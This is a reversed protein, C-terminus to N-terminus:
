FVKMQSIQWDGAGRALTVLVRNQDVRRQASGKTATVQNVFVLAEVEHDDASVVSSAVVSARLRVHDSMTQERVKAMSRAYQARFDPTMGAEASRMDAGFTNWRYSLAKETLRTAAAMGTTRATTSRIAGGVGAPAQQARALAWGCAVVALVVLVLLVAALRGSGLFSPHEGSSPARDSM